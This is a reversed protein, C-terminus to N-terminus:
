ESQRTYFGEFWPEWTAGSDNSQEFFQRVRGDELPTWTGRFDAKTQDALTYIHGTLVMSDDDIGGEIRIQAGSSIWQQVWKGITPDYYNISMGTSGAVSTWSEILLCDKEALVIRNRGQLAGAADTVQWDGVWFDFQRFQPSYRCPAALKGADTVIAQYAPTERIGEFDPSTELFAVNSFGADVAARLREIADDDNGRAAALKAAEWEIWAAPVGSQQATALATAAAGYDGLYREAIALRYWGRASAPDLRVLEGYADRAAEWNEAEYAENAREAVGAQVSSQAVAAASALCVLLAAFVRQLLRPHTASM